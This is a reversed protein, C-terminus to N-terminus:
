LGGRATQASLPKRRFMRAHHLQVFTAVHVSDLRMPWLLTRHDRIYIRTTFKSHSIAFTRSLDYRRMIVDRTGRTPARPVSLHACDSYLIGFKERTRCSLCRFACIFTRHYCELLTTTFVSARRFTCGTCCPRFRGLDAMIFSLSCFHTLYPALAHLLSASCACALRSHMSMFAVVQRPLKTLSPPALHCTPRSLQSNPADM